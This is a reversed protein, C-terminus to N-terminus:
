RVILVSCPSKRVVRSATSGLAYDVAGPAQSGVIILDIKNTGAYRAIEVGPKGTIVKSQVDAADPAVSELRKLVEATLHNESKVTVFEAVFGSVQELVTLLTITGGPALMERARALKPAILTEHDLAVPILINSYM